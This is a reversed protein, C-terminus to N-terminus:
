TMSQHAISFVAYSHDSQKADYGYIVVLAETYAFIVHRRHKIVRIKPM